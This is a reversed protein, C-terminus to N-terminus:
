SSFSRAYSKGYSVDSIFSKVDLVIVRLYRLGVLTHTLSLSSVCRDESSSTSSSTEDLQPSGGLIIKHHGGRCLSIFTVETLRISM